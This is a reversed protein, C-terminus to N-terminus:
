SVVTRKPTLVLVASASPSTTSVRDTAQVTPSTTSTSSRKMPGIVWTGGICLASL